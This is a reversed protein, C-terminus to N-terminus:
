LLLYFFLFALVSLAILNRVGIGSEQKIVIFTNRNVTSNGAVSTLKAGDIRVYHAGDLIGASSTTSPKQEEVDM